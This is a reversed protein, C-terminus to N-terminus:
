NWRFGENRKVTSGLIKVPKLFYPTSVKPPWYEAEWMVAKPFFSERKVRLKPM